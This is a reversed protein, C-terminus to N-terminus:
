IDQNLFVNKIKDNFDVHLSNFGTIFVSGTIQTIFKGKKKLDMTM